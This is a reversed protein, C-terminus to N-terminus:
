GCYLLQMDVFSRSSFSFRVDAVDVRRVRRLRVAPVWCRAAVGLLVASAPLALRSDPEDLWVRTLPPTMRRLRERLAEPSAPLLALRACAVGCARGPFAGLAEDLLLLM